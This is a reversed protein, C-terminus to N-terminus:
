RAAIDAKHRRRKLNTAAPIEKGLVDEYGGRARYNIKLHVLREFSNGNDDSLGAGAHFTHASRITKLPDFFRTVGGVDVLFGVDQLPTSALQGNSFDNLVFV